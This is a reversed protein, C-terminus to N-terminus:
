NFAILFKIVNRMRKASTTKFETCVSHHFQMFLTVLVATVIKSRTTLVLLFTACLHVHPHRSILRNRSHFTNNQKM